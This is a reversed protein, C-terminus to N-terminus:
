IFVNKKALIKLPPMMGLQMIEQGIWNLKGRVNSYGLYGRKQSQLDLDRHNLRMYEPSWYKVM